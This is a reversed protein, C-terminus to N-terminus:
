CCWGLLCGAGHAPGVAHAAARSAATRTSAVYVRVRAWGCAGGGRARHLGRSVHGAPGGCVLRVPLAARHGQPQHHPRGHRPGARHALVGLLLWAHTRASVSCSGHASCRSLQQPACERGRAFARRVEYATFFNLALDVYFFLDIVGEFWFWLGEAPINFGQLLVRAGPVRPHHRTIFLPAKCTLCAHLVPAAAQCWAHCSCGRVVRVPTVWVIYM